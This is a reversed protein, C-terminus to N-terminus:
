LRLRRHCVIKTSITKMVWGDVEERRGEERGEGEGRLAPQNPPLSCQLPMPFISAQTHRLFAEMDCDLQQRQSKLIKRILTEVIVSVKVSTQTPCPLPQNGLWCRPSTRPAPRLTAHPQEGVLVDHQDRILFPRTDRPSCTHLIVVIPNRLVGQYQM